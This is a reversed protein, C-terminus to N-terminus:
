PSHGPKPPVKPRFIKDENKKTQPQVIPVGSSSADPSLQPSNGRGHQEPVDLKNLPRVPVKPPQKQHVPKSQSPQARDDSEAVVRPSKSRSVNVYNAEADTNERNGQDSTVDVDLDIM